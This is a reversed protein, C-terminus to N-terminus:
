YGALVGPIKVTPAESYVFHLEILVWIAINVCCVLLTNLFNISCSLAVFM